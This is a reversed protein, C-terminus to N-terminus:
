HAAFRLQRLNIHNFNQFSSRLQLLWSAQDHRSTHLAQEIFVDFIDYILRCFFIIIFDLKRMFITWSLVEKLTEPAAEDLDRLGVLNQKLVEENFTKVHNLFTEYSNVLQVKWTLLRTKVTRNWVTVEFVHQIYQVEAQFM